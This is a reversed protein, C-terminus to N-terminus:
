QRDLRAGIRKSNYRVGGQGHSTSRVLVVSALISDISSCAVVFFYLSKEFATTDVKIV